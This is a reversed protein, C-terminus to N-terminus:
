AGVRDVDLDKAVKSLGGNLYEVERKIEKCDYYNCLYDELKRFFACEKIPLEEGSLIRLLYGFDAGGHFTIWHNRRNM